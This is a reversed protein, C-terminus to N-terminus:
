KSLASLGLTKEVVLMILLTAIMLMLSLASVTPNYNYEIYNILAYPLTNVGPGKLFMSVPINNFSNIFSLMFAAMISSRLNPLVTKFFAQVRTCGLSMAAEEVSGDFDHLSSAIVRITYPLVILFHGILLALTLNIHFSLVIVQYLAFGMVIGPIFSPSLFYSLLFQSIRTKKKTLAYSAPVGLIIAIISSAVALWLSTQFSSVFSKTTFVTGFWKLTFGSIPFTIVSKSGFATIAIIILPVALFIFALAAIFNITKNRVM